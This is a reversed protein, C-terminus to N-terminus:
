KFSILVLRKKNNEDIIYQVEKIKKQSKTAGVISPVGWEGCLVCTRCHWCACGLTSLHCEIWFSARGPVFVLCREWISWTPRPGPRWNSRSYSCRWPRYDTISTAKWHSFETSAGCSFSRRFEVQLLKLVWLSEMAKRNTLQLQVSLSYSNCNSTEGNGTAQNAVQQQPFWLSSNHWVRWQLGHQCLTGQSFKQNSVSM